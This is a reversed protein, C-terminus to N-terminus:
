IFKKKNGVSLRKNAEVYSFVSAEDVNQATVLDDRDNIRYYNGSYDKIYYLKDIDVM